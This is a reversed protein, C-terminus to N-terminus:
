LLHSSDDSWNNMEGIREKGERGVEHIFSLRSKVQIYTVYTKCSSECGERGHCLVPDKPVGVSSDVLLFM